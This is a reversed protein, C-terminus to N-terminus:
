MVNCCLVICVYMFVCIYIHTIYQSEDRHEEVVKPELFQQCIWTSKPQNEGNEGLNTINRHVKTCMRVKQWAGTVMSITKALAAFSLRLSFCASPGLPAVKGPRSGPPGPSSGKTKKSNKTKKLKKIKKLKKTKKLKKPKQPIGLIPSFYGGTIDFYGHYLHGMSISPKGFKFMTSREMAINTMVLHYKSMWNWVVKSPEFIAQDGKAEELGLM